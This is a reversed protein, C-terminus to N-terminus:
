PIIRVSTIKFSFITSFKAYAPLVVWGLGFYQIRSSINILKELVNKSALVKKIGPM